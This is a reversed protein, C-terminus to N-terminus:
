FREFEKNFRFNPGPPSYGFGAPFTAANIAGTAIASFDILDPTLFIAALMAPILEGVPGVSPDSLEPYRGPVPEPDDLEELQLDGSELSGFLDSQGVRRDELSEVQDPFTNRGGVLITLEEELSFDLQVLGIEASAALAVPSTSGGPFDRYEANELTLSHNLDLDNGVDRGFGEQAHRDLHNAPTANDIRVFEAAVVAQHEAAVPMQSDIMLSPEAGALDIYVAKLAEPGVGLFPQDLMMSDRFLHERKVELFHLESVIVSM